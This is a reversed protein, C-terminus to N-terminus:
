KVIIIKEIYFANKIQVKLLYSGTQIDETSISIQKNNNIGKYLNSLLKGQIDYLEVSLENNITEKFILNINNTAPNPSINFWKNNVLENSSTIVPVTIINSVSTCAVSDFLEVRYEYSGNSSFNSDIYVYNTVNTNAIVEHLPSGWTSTSSLRRFIQYKSGNSAYEPVGIRNWALDVKGLASISSSLYISSLTDFAKDLVLGDCGSRARIYFSHSANNANSSINPFSYTYSTTALNSISDVAVNDVYIIYRLFSNGTETTDSMKWTFSVDGNPLVSLCRPEPSSVFPRALLRVQLNISAQGPIPCFNDKARYFFNFLQHDANNTGGFGTKRLHRIHNCSTKWSTFMTLNLPANLTPNIVPNNTMYQYTACPTALPQSIDFKVNCGATTTAICPPVLCPTVPGVNAGPLGLPNEIGFNNLTYYMQSNSFGFLKDATDIAFSQVTDTWNVEINVSDGPYASVQTGSSPITSVLKQIGNIFFKYGTNAGNSAGAIVPAKNLNNPKVVFGCDRFVVGNIDGNAYSSVQQSFIYHQNLIHASSSNPILYTFQGTQPNLIPLSGFASAGLPNTLTFPVGAPPIYDPYRQPTQTTFPIEHWQNNITVGVPASTYPDGGNSNNSNIPKGFNTSISDGDQDFAGSNFSITKGKEPWNLPSLLFDPSNKYSSVCNLASVINQNAGGNLTSNPNSNTVSVISPSTPFAQTVDKRIPFIASRVIFGDNAALPYNVIQAPRCCPPVYYFWWGKRHPIFNGLNVQGSEYTIEEYVGPTGGSICQPPSFQCGPSSIIRSMVYNCPIQSVTPHNRVFITQAGPSTSIGECALYVRLIFQYRNPNAPHCKWIIEGGIYHSAYLQLSSVFILLLTFIKKM